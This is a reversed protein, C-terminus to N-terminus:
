AQEKIKLLEEVSLDPVYGPQSADQHHRELTMATDMIVLDFTTARSIIESPLMGYRQGM